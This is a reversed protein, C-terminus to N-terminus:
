DLDVPVVVMTAEVEPVAVATAKVPAVVGCRQLPRFVLSDWGPDRHSWRARESINELVGRVDMPQVWTVEPWVVLPQVVVM